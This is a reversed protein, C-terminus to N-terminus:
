HIKQVVASFSHLYPAPVLICLHKTLNRTGNNKNSKCNLFFTHKPLFIDTKGPLNDIGTQRIRQRLRFYNKNTLSM